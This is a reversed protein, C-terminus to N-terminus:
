PMPWRERATVHSCICKVILLRMSLIDKLKSAIHAATHSEDFTSTALIVNLRVLEEDVWHGTVSILSIRPTSNSWADTTFSLSEVNCLEEKIFQKVKAVIKPILKESFYPKSPIKYDPTLRAFLRKFGDTEVIRYPQNELIIFKSIATDIEKVLSSDPKLKYDLTAQKVAKRVGTAPDIVVVEEEVKRKLLNIKHKITLHDRLCKTSGGKCSKWEKCIKCQADSTQLAIVLFQQGFKTTEDMQALALAEAGAIRRVTREDPLDSLQADAFSLVISIVQELLTADRENRMM